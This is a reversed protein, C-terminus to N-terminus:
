SVRVHVNSLHVFFMSIAVVVFFVHPDDRVIEVSLKSRSIFTVINSFVVCAICFILFRWIWSHSLTVVRRSTSM